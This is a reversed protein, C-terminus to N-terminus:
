IEAYVNTFFYENWAVFQSGQLLFDVSDMAVTNRCLSYSVTLLYTYKTKVTM